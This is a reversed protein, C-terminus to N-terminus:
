PASLQDIVSRIELYLAAIETLRNLDNSFFKAIAQSTGPYAVDLRKPDPLRDAGTQKMAQAWVVIVEEPASGIRMGVHLAARLAVELDFRRSSLRVIQDSFQKFVRDVRDPEHDQVQRNAEVEAIAAAYPDASFRYHYEIGQCLRQKGCAILAIKTVPLGRNLRLRVQGVVRDKEQYPVPNKSRDYKNARDGLAERRAEVIGGFERQIADLLGGGALWTLTPYTVPLEHADVWRLVWLIATKDWALRSNNSRKTRFQTRDFEEQLAVLDPRM